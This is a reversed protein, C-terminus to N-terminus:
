LVSAHSAAIAFAALLMIALLAIAPWPNPHKTLHM